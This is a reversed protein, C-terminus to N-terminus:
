GGLIQGEKTGEIYRYLKKGKRSVGKFLVRVPKGKNRPHAVDLRLPVGLADMVFRCIHIVNPEDKFSIACVYQEFSV